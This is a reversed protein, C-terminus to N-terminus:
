YVQSGPVLTKHTIYCVMLAAVTAIYPDGYPLVSFLGSWIDWGTTIIYSINNIVGDFFNNM